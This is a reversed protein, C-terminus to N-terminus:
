GHYDWGFVLVGAHKKNKVTTWKSNQNSGQFTDCISGDDFAPKRRCFFFFEQWGGFEFLGARYARAARRGM